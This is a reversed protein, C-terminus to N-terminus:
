REIVKLHHSLSYVDTDKGYVKTRVKYWGTNDKPVETVIGEQIHGDSFVIEVQDNLKPENMKFLEKTSFAYKQDVKIITSLQAIAIALNLLYM